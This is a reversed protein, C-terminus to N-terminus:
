LEKGLFLRCMYGIFKNSIDVGDTRVYKNTIEDYIQMEDVEKCYRSYVVLNSSTKFSKLLIKNIDFGLNGIGILAVTKDEIMYSFERMIRSCRGKDINYVFIFFSYDGTNFTSDLSFYDCNFVKSLSEGITIEESVIVYKM